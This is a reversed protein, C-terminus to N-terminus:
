VGAAYGAVFAAYGAVFAAYGAVFSAPELLLWEPEPHNGNLANQSAPVRHRSAPLGSITVM